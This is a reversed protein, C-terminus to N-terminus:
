KVSVGAGLAFDVDYQRRISRVDAIHQKPDVDRRQLGYQRDVSAKGPGMGGGGRLILPKGTVAVVGLFLAQPVRGHGQGALIHFSIPM